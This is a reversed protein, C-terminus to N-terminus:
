SSCSISIRSAWEPPYGAYVDDEPNESYPDKLLHLLREIESMDGQEAKEIANQALYNRLVYRPNAQTMRDKRKEDISLEAQLRQRYHETWEDFVQRNVYQNRLGDNSGGDDSDFEALSRFFITYDVQNGVMSTLLRDILERDSDRSTQLGLKQRMLDTFAASYTSEYQGLCDKAIEASAEPM